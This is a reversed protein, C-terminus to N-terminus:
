VSGGVAGVSDLGSALPGGAGHIRAKRDFCIAVPALSFTPHDQTTALLNWANLFKEFRYRLLNSKTCSGKDTISIARGSFHSAPIVYFENRPAIYAIVFDCNERENKTLTFSFHKSKSRPSKFCSSRRSKVEVKLGNIVFDYPSKWSTCEVTLGMKACKDYVALEVAAGIQSNGTMRVVRNQPDVAIQIKKNKAEIRSALRANRATIKRDSEKNRKAAIVTQFSCGFIGSFLQRAYERSFCHKAAIQTLSIHGKSASDLDSLISEGYRDSLKMLKKYIKPVM